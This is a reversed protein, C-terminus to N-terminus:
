KKLLKEIESEFKEKLEVYAAGTAPGSFGTHVATINDDEDVFITTPYSRVRDLVPFAKTALKKDAPGAILVPYDSEHRALYKKVQQANRKPDNTM